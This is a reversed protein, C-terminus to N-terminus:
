FSDLLIHLLDQCVWGALLSVGFLSFAFASVSLSAELLLAETQDIGLEVAIGYSLYLISKIGFLLYLFRTITGFVPIHTTGRHRRGILIRYPAWFAEYFRGITTGLSYFRQEELTKKHHDIDPTMVSGLVAGGVFGFAIMPEVSYLLPSIAAACGIGGLAFKFHTVGSPM